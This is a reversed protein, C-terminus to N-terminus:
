WGAPPGGGDADSTGMPSSETTHVVLTRTQKLRSAQPQQFAEEKSGKQRYRPPM